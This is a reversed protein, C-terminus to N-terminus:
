PAPIKWLVANTGEQVAVYLFGQSRAFAVAQQDLPINTYSASVSMTDIRIVGVNGTNTTDPNFTAGAFTAFQNATVLLYVGSGSQARTMDALKIAGSSTYLVDRSNTTADRREVVLTGGPGQGALYVFLNGDSAVRIPSAADFVAVGGPPGVIPSFDTPASVTSSNAIYPARILRGVAGTAVSTIGLLTCSGTCRATALLTNPMPLDIVDDGMVPNPSGVDNTSLNQSQMRYLSTSGEGSVWVFIPATSPSLAKMRTVGADNSGLYLALNTSSGMSALTTSDIQDANVGLSFRGAIYTSTQNSAIGQVRYEGSWSISRTRAPTVGGDFPWGELISEQMNQQERVTVVALPGAM